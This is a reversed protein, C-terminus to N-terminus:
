PQVQGTTKADKEKDSKEKTILLGEIKMGQMRTVMLRLGRYRLSDGQKPIRGMLKLFLGAVTKYDDGAPLELGMAENVEEVKMNGDVQFTHEDIVEFEKGGNSLEDGMPGVIEEIINTLGVIGATGGYEDVVIAMRHNQERMEVLLENIQKFMPVFYAPKVLEDIKSEKAVYGKALGMLVDKLSLIGAVSDMTGEYVPFRSVPSKEYLAMFDTIRAGKEIAVVELRPVMIKAVPRDGFEFVKHLMEAAEEEVMGEKEGVSIMTRIEEESILSQPTPPAGFIRSLGGAIYSLVNVLPTLLWEMAKLPRAFLLSVKESHHAAVTKPTTESFILLIITTAVIAIIAGAANGFMDVALVTGLAAAATNAFNTGLLVVSYFREPKELLGAVLKAGKVGTAIMHELRYRQLSIFATEASCFFGSALVCIIFLTLYWIDHFM